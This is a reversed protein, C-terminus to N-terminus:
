AAGRGIAKVGFRDRIRDMAQTLSKERLDRGRDPLLQLQAGAGSLDSFALALYRVRVRRVAVRHFLLRTAAFLPGDDFTPPSIRSRGSHTMNDSYGVTLAATRAALGLTRLRYGCREVIAFLHAHLQSRSNTDAALIEQEAVTLKQSPPSVPRPDIGQARQSLVPGMKGFVLSLHGVTYDVLEGIRQINLEDFLAPDPVDQTGPLRLVEWPSLFPQENGPVVDLQDTRIVSSAVRSVSKNIAIGIVSPLRLQEQIQRRIKAASDRSEGILRHTGSMDLFFQGVPSPEIVPTFDGLVGSIARTAREYFVRDPPLVTTHPCLRQAAALRMGPIVGSDRAEHSVALIQARSHGATAIVVPRTALSRYRVREVAVSFDPVELHFITKQM